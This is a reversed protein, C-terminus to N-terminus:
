HGTSTESPHLKLEEQLIRFLSGRSINLALSQQRVSLTPGLAVAQRLREVTEPTRVTRQTGVFQDTVKGTANFREVWKLITNRTPVSGHRAIQFHVRFAKQVRVVSKCEFFARVCFVRHEVSWNAM